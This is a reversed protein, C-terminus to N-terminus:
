QLLRCASALKPEAESSRVAGSGRPETTSGCSGVGARGKGLTNISGTILMGLALVQLPAIHVVNSLSDCAGAATSWPIQSGLAPGSAAPM